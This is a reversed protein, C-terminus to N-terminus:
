VRVGLSSNMINCNDNSVEDNMLELPPQFGEVRLVQPLAVTMVVDHVCLSPHHSTRHSMDPRWTTRRKRRADLAHRKQIITDYTDYPLELIDLIKLLYKVTFKEM